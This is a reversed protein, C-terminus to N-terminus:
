DRDLCGRNQSGASSRLTLRSKFIFRLLFWLAQLWSHLLCVETPRAVTTCAHPFGVIVMVTLLLCSQLWDLWWWM